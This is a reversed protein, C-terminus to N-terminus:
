TSTSGTFMSQRDRCRKVSVRAGLLVSPGRAHHAPFGGRCRWPASLALRLGGLKCGVACGAQSPALISPLNRAILKRVLTLRM